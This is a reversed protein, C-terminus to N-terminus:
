VKAAVKEKTSVKNKPTPEEGDTIQVPMVLNLQPTLNGVPEIIVPKVSDNIRFLLEDTKCAKVADQLYRTNFAITFQPLDGKITIETKGQGTKSNTTIIAKSDSDNFDFKITPAKCKGVTNLINLCKNLAAREVIFEYEFSQPIISHYQPYDGELTRSYVTINEELTAFISGKQVFIWMNNFPYEEIAKYIIDLGSIPITTQLEVSDDLCEEESSIHSLRHADTSALEWKKDKIILSAGTIIQKCEDTSIAYAVSSIGLALKNRPIEFGVAEESPIPLLPYNSSQDIIPMSFSHDEQNIYLNTKDMGLIIDGNDLKLIIEYFIKGDICINANEEISNNLTINIGAKMDWSTITIKSEEADFSILFNSLIPEIPQQPLCHRALTLYPILKDREITTLHKIEM